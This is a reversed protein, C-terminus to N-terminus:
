HRPKLSRSQGAHPLDPNNQISVATGSFAAADMEALLLQAQGSEAPNVAAETM